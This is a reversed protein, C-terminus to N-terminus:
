DACKHSGMALPVVAGLWLLGLIVGGLSSAWSRRSAHPGIRYVSRLGCFLERGMSATRYAQSNLLTGLFVSPHKM